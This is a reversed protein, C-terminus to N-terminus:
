GVAIEVAVEPLKNRVVERTEVANISIKCPHTYVKPIEHEKEQKRDNKQREEKRKM